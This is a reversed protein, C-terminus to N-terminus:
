IPLGEHHGGVYHVIVIVTANNAKTASGSQSAAAAAASVVVSISVFVAWVFDAASTSVSFEVGVVVHIGLRVQVAEDGGGM